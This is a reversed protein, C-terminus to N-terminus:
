KIKSVWDALRENWYGTMEHNPHSKILHQYGHAAVAPDLEGYAELQDSVLEFEMAELTELNRREEEPTMPWAAETKTEANKEDQGQGVPQDTAKERNISM